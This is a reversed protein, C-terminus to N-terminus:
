PGEVQLVLEVVDGGTAIGARLQAADVAGADVGDVERRHDHGGVSIAVLGGAGGLTREGDGDLVINRDHNAILTLALALTFARDPANMGANGFIPQGHLVAIRRVAIEIGALGGRAVLSGAAHTRQAGQELGTGVLRQAEADVQRLCVQRSKVRVTDRQDIRDAGVTVRQRRRGALGGHERQGDVAVARPGEVQLVLEVVDVGTAILAYLQAIAAFARDAEDVERRHDSGGVGVTVLDRACRATGEGDGDLIVNRNSDDFALADMGADGLIAQRRVLAISGGAIEVGALGRRTVLSGAIGARQVRQELDAGVIREAEADVQRLRVQRLEIRVANREDVRDARITVRQDRRGALGSHERQGDVVIARPREVQLALEIVDVGIAIFARLQAIPFAGDVGDVERRDDNGRIGIAVPSDTGGLTGERDRDLVINRNRRKCQPFTRRDYDILAQLLIGALVLRRAQALHRNQTGRKEVRRSRQRASVAGARGCRERELNDAAAVGPEVQCALTACGFLDQQDVLAATKDLTTDVAGARKGEGDLDIARVAVHRQRLELREIM